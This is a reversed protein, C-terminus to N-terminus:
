LSYDSNKLGKIASKGVLNLNVGKAYPITKTVGNETYMRYGIENSTFSSDGVYCVEKIVGDPLLLEIYYWIVYKTVSKTKEDETVDFTQTKDTFYEELAKYKDNNLVAFTFKFDWVRGLIDKYMNLNDLSRGTEESSMTNKSFTLTTPNQGCVEIDTIDKIPELLNSTTSNFVYYTGSTTSTVTNDKVYIPNDTTGTNKYYTTGAVYGSPLTVANYGLVLNDITINSTDISEKIPAVRLIGTSYPQQNYFIM